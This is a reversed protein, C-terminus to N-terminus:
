NRNKKFRNKGNQFNQPQLHSYLYRCSLGECLIQLHIRDEPFLKNLMTQITKLRSDMIHEGIARLLDPQKM